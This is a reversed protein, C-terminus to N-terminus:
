DKRHLLSEDLFHRCHSETQIFRLCFSQRGSGQCFINKTCKPRQRYWQPQACDPSPFFFRIIQACPCSDIQSTAISIKRNPWKGQWKTQNVLPGTTPVAITEVPCRASFFKLQRIPEQQGHHSAHHSSSVSDFTPCHVDSKGLSHPRDSQCIKTPPLVQMDLFYNAALKSCITVWADNSKKLAVEYTGLDGVSAIPHDVGSMKRYKKQHMISWPHKHHTGHVFNINQKKCCHHKFKSNLQTKKHLKCDWPVRVPNLSHTSSHHLMCEVCKRYKSLITDGTAKVCGMACNMSPAACFQIYNFYNTPLTRPGGRVGVTAHFKAHISCFVLLTFFRQISFM